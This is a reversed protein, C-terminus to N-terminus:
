GIRGCGVESGSSALWGAASVRGARRRSARRDAARLPLRRAAGCVLIGTVHPPQTQNRRTRPQRQCRVQDEGWVRRLKPPLGCRYAADIGRRTRATECEGGSTITRATITTLADAHTLTAQQRAPGRGAAMCTVTVPLPGPADITATVTRRRGSGATVSAADPTATCAATSPSVTFPESVTVAGTGAGSADALGSIRVPSNYLARVELRYGGVAQATATTAEITYDGAGLRLNRLRSDSGPGSGDSHLVAGATADLGRYLVVYTDLPAADSAAALGVSVRAAADLTFTHRRAYFTGSLGRGASTCGGNAAVTADRTVTVGHVLSGLSDDCDAAVGSLVASATGEARGDDTCTVTVTAATGATIQASLLREQPRRPDPATVTGTPAATCDATAPDVTFADTVTAATGPTSYATTDHLGSIQVQQKCDIGIHTTHTDDAPYRGATVTATAAGDDTCALTATHTRQWDGTAANDPGIVPTAAPMSAPTATVAGTTDWSVAIAASDVTATLTVALSGGEALTCSHAADVELTATATCADAPAFKATVDGIQPRPGDSFLAEDTGPSHNLATCTVTVDAAGDRQLYVLVVRTPGRSSVWTRGVGHGDTTVSCNAHPPDVTIKDTGYRLGRGTLTAVTEDLGDVSVERLRGAFTAAASAPSRSDATCTVTVEHSFPAPLTVSVTREGPTGTKTVSPTAGAATATCAADAPEVTFTGAATLTGRGTVAADALDTIVVPPQDPATTVTLTFTGTARATDTTVEIVYTLGPRAPTNQMRADGTNAAGQPRDKNQAHVTAASGNGRLVYLYTDVAPSSADITLRSAVPVRLTFRRAWHPSTSTGKKWSRCSGAAAITGTRTITGAGLSGLDASCDGTRVFEASATAPAHGSATCTVEVKATGTGAGTVTVTVTRSEGTSDAFSATAALGSVAATCDAAAPSVEFDDGLSASADADGGLGSIEVRPLGATGPREGFVFDADAAVADYEPATCSVRVTVTGAEDSDVTVTRVLGTGSIAIEVDSSDLGARHAATCAATDPTVRFADVLQSGAYGSAGVWGKVTVPVRRVTFEATGSAPTHGSRTCTVEVTLSGTATATVEVTREPRGAGSTSVGSEGATITGASRAATCASSWPSVTFGGSMAGPADRSGGVLGSIVVKPLSVTFDATVVDPDYGSRTCTVEVTSTGSEDSTSVELTRSSSANDSWTREWDEGSSHAATCASSSPSVTFGDSLTLEGAARRTASAGGFGTIRVRPREGFVFDADAAVADYEPATCSVRVTVTGAEDSDVTVTRVLGTGSIAIEVDSSDLGARHAATCAATDPTVRFADVLQSGAYGSAGVWGKVTVPVRRM